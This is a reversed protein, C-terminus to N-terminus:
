SLIMAGLFLAAKKSIKGDNLPTKFAKSLGELFRTISKDIYDKERLGAAELIKKVGQSDIVAKSKQEASTDHVSV